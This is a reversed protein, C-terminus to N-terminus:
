LCIHYGLDISCFDFSLTDTIQFWGCKASISVFCSKTTNCGIAIYFSALIFNFILCPDLAAFFTSLHFLDNQTFRVKEHGTLVKYPQDYNHRAFLLTAFSPTENNNQNTQQQKYWLGSPAILFAGDMTWSLRRFFSEVTSEDAFLNHKRNTNTTHYRKITKVKSLVDKKNNHNDKHQHKGKKTHNNVVANSYLCVSRDSGQSALYVGLPDMAVGQVYHSHGTADRHVCTWNQNTLEWVMTCHDLSGCVFRQSDLSWSIDMIDQCNSSPLIKVDLEKEEELYTGWFHRGNGNGQKNPPVSWVIITGGDGATALHIGDPSFAVANVSREHRSLSTLHSIKQSCFSVKWLHVDSSNGATAVVTGYQEEESKSLGSELSSISYLPAAKGNPDSHWLIQPTEVKM